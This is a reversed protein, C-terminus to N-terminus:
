QLLVATITLEGFTAGTGTQVVDVTRDGADLAASVGTLTLQQGGTASSTLETGPVDAAGAKVVYTCPPTPCTPVLTVNVFLRGARPLTFPVADSHSVFGDSLQGPAFDAAELSGDNVKPSNVAGNALKGGNISGSAIKSRTVADDAIKLETVIGNGLDAGALSGDGIKLSTVAGDAIKNNSVAAAKIAKSKVANPAIDDSKVTHKGPLALATGSLAVFLAIYGVLNARLHGAIRQSLTM